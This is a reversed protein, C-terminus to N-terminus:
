LKKIRRKNPDSILEMAKKSVLIELRNTMIVQKSDVRRLV